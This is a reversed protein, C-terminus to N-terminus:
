RMGRQKAEMEHRPLEQNRWGDSLVLHPYKKKEQRPQRSSLIYHALIGILVLGVLALLVIPLWSM